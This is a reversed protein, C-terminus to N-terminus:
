LNLIKKIEYDCYDYIKAVHDKTLPHELYVYEKSLQHRLKIQEVTKEIISNLDSKATLEIKNM